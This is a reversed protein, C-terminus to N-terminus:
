PVFQLLIAKPFQVRLARGQERVWRYDMHDDLSDLSIAAMPSPHYQAVINAKFRLDDMRKILVEIGLDENLVWTAM